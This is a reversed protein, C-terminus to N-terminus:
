REGSPGRSNDIVTGALPQESPSDTPCTAARSAGFPVASSPTPGHRSSPVRNFHMAEPLFSSTESLLPSGPPTLGIASVKDAFYCACEMHRGCIAPFRCM